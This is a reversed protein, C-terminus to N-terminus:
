PHRRLALAVARVVARARDDTARPRFRAIDHPVRFLNTADEVLALSDALRDPRVMDRLISELARSLRRVHTAVLDGHDGALDLYALFLAPDADYRDRKVRLIALVWQELREDPPLDRALAATSAAEVEAFWREALARVLDAKTPFFRHVYSQSIGVRDALVSLFIRCGRTEVLM